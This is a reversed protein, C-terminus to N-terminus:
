PLIQKRFISDLAKRYMEMAKDKDGKLEYARGLKYYTMQPRPNAAAAATLVEVAKDAEGKLILAGGLGTKAETSNPNLELARNFAGLANDADKVSLYLFGLLVHTKVIDSKIEISKKAAEVAQDILGENAFTVALNYRREAEVASEDKVERHPSLMEQLKEKDIEGIVYGLNGDLMVRYTVPHGSIDYAIKGDRNIIVTAPYVRIGYDGYVKRGKDFLVPFDLELDKATRTVKQPDDDGSVMSIAEVGKDRYQKLIDKIDKLAAASYDQDTRWYIMVVTKGKDASLSVSKGDISSLTFDPAIDGASLGIADAYALPTFLLFILLFIPIM